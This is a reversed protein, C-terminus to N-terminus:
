REEDTAGKPPPAQQAVLAWWAAILVAAHCPQPHCWCGLRKGTLEPLRALLDKRRWLYRRYQAIVAARDGDPGIRYPNGWASPRGVYVYDSGATRRGHCHVVMPPHLTTM